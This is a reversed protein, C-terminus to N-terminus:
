EVIFARVETPVIVQQDSLQIEFIFEIEDEVALTDTDSIAQNIEAITTTFTAQRGNGPIPTSRYFIAPNEASEAELNGVNVSFGGAVQQIQSITLGSEEPIEMTFEITGDSIPVEIFPSFGYTTANPFTVPIEPRNDELFQGYHDECSALLVVLGVIAFQFIYKKM